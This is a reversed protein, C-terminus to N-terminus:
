PASCTNEAPSQEAQQPSPLGPCRDTTVKVCMPIRPSGKPSDPAQMGDEPVMPGQRACPAASFNGRFAIQPFCSRYPLRPLFLRLAPVNESSQAADKCLTDRCTFIALSSAAPHSQRGGAQREEVKRWKGLHMPPLTLCRSAKPLARRRQPSANKKKKKPEGLPPLPHTYLPPSHTCFGGLYLLFVDLPVHLYYPSNDHLLLSPAMPLGSQAQSLEGRGPRAERARPETAAMATVFHARTKKQQLSANQTRAFLATM